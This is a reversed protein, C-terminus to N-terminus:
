KSKKTLTKRSVTPWGGKRKRPLLGTSIGWFEITGKLRKKRGNGGKNDHTSTIQDHLAWLKNVLM